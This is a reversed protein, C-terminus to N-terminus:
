KAELLIHKTISVAESGTERPVVAMGGCHRRTETRQAHSQGEPGPCPLTSVSLSLRLPQGARWHSRTQGSRPCQDGSLSGRIFGPRPLSGEREARSFCM